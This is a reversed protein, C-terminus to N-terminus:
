YISAGYTKIQDGILQCKMNKKIRTGPPINQSIIKGTGSIEYKVNLKGLVRIAERLTLYKLDPMTNSKVDDLNIKDRVVIKEKFSTDNESPNNNVYSTQDIQLSEEEKFNELYPDTEILKQAINKFIPAAVDGGYYSVAAPSNVLILILYQPSQVPFFGIFSSNYKETSYQGKVIQRSTGTKGGIAIKNIKAKQGTGNKVVEMLLNKIRDSTTESIIKRILKPRFQYKVMGNFTVIKNIVQPQYLNGGNILAAYANILQLPTLSIEYGYSLSSKTYDTWINPNKLYGPAEGPLEIDTVNGFGFGRLYVYFSEKDLRQSLKSMGINSSKSFIEKVSLDSYSHADKIKINKFNYVGNNVFLCENENCLQKDLLISLSIAKFTSGPEYTDTLIKNRRLTDNYEYFKNPNYDEINSMALIEGTQPNMIIGVANKASFDKIGKRLEDELINQFSKNITLYINNGPHSPIVNDENLTIMNGKADKLIMRSGPIGCLENEFYKEIGTLGVHESNTYGILHSALNNYPYIRTPDNEWKLGNVKLTKLKIARDGNAKKELYVIGNANEMLNLYHQVPKKFYKSFYYAITDANRRKLMRTDVLFSVDNRSYTLLVNNRDYILGREADIKEVATQQRNALYKLEESKLVQLNFLRAAIAFFAAVIFVLIVLLRNINM